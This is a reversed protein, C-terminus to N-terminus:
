STSSKLEAELFLGRCEMHTPGEWEVSALSSILPKTGNVFFILSNNKSFITQM